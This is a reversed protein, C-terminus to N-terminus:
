AEGAPICGFRRDLGARQDAAFADGAQSLEASLAAGTLGRNIAATAASAQQAAFGALAADFSAHAAAARAATGGDQPGPRCAYALTARTASSAFTFRERPAESAPRVTQAAPVVTVCGALMGLGFLAVLAIKM